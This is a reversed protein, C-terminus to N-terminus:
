SGIMLQADKPDCYDTYWWTFLFLLLIAGTQTIM